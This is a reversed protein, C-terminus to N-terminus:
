RFIIKTLNMLNHPQFNQKFKKFEGADLWIGRCQICQEYWISYRDIDLMKQMKGRCKPCKIQQQIRNYTDGIEPYGIDINESGKIKKLEEAETTDFWIGECKICREVAINQYYIMNLKINCKPCKIAKM